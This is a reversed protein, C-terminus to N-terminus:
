GDPGDQARCLQRVRYARQRLLQSRGLVAGQCIVFDAHDRGSEGASSSRPLSGPSDLGIPGITSRAVQSENIMAKAQINRPDLLRFIPQSQYVVLGERIQMVVTGWSNVRNAHVIIGDRPARMTCNAIMAEVRRLRETELQLSSELSLLDAHIAEIKAKLAKLIRKGTYKVLRKLMCEADRLAFEAQQFAAADADVQPETRFGKAHAARSWVLNREAYEKETERIRIYNRVLATDQPLIGEAYERLAIENAKLTYNAQEVWAKAQAYRIRQLPLVDRFASSDLECVVDGAKVRSGEPLISLITPPAPAGIAIVGQDALTSRLPIHPEVFYDFSRISPRKAATSSDIASATTTSASGTATSGGASPNGGRKSEVSSGTAGSKASSQGEEGRAKAPAKGKVAAGTTATTTSRSASSGAKNTTRPRPAPARLPQGNAVPAAVPLALFSEVQCRVVDDDSCELSGYEVVVQAVDGRDVKVTAPAPVSSSWFPVTNFGMSLSWYLGFACLIGVASWGLEGM